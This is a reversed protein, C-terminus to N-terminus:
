VQGGPPWTGDGVIEGELPQNNACSVAENCPQNQEAQNQETPQVDKSEADSLEFQIVCGEKSALQETTIKTAVNCQVDFVQVQLARENEQLVEKGFTPSLSIVVKRTM